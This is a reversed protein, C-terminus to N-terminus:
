TIKISAPGVFPDARKTLKWDPLLRIFLIQIGQKDANAM